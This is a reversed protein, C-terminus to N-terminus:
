RSQGTAPRSIWQFTLDHRAGHAGTLTIASGTDSKQAMVIDGGARLCTNEPVLFLADFLACIAPASPAASM